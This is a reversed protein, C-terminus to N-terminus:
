AARSQGEPEVIAGGCWTCVKVWHEDFGREGCYEFFGYGQDEWTFDHAGCEECYPADPDRRKCAGGGLRHPFRYARCTCTDSM